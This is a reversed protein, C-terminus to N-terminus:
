PTDAEECRLTMWGSRDVNGINTLERVYLKRGDDLTLCADTTIQRHYRLDVEYSAASEIAQVANKLGVKVRSPVFVVPTGDPVENSLTVWTTLVGPNLRPM